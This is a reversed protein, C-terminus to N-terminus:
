ASSPMRSLPIHSSNLRTSKRDLPVEKEMRFASSNDIVFIGQEAFKPALTKSVSGGASFLAIDLSYKSKLTSYDSIKNIDEVVIEVGIM